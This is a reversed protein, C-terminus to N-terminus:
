ETVAQVCQETALETTYTADVRLLGARVGLRGDIVIAREHKEANHLTALEESDTVLRLGLGSVKRLEEEARYAPILPEIQCVHFLRPTGGIWVKIQPFTPIHAGEVPRLVGTLRVRPAPQVSIGIDANQANTTFPLTMMLLLYVSWAMGILPTVIPKRNMRSDTM